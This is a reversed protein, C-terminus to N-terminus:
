ASCAAAANKQVTFYSVRMKSGTELSCKMERDMCFHLVKRGSVVGKKGGCQVSM